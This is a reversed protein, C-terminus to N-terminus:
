AHWWCWLRGSRAFKVKEKRVAACQVLEFETGRWSDDEDVAMAMYEEAPEDPESESAYEEDMESDDMYPDQQPNDDDVLTMEADEDEDSADDDSQDEDSSNSSDDDSAADGESANDGTSEDDNTTVAAKGEPGYVGSAATTFKFDRELFGMSATAGYEWSLPPIVCVRACVDKFHKDCASGDVITTV